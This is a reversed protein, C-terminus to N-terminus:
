RAPTRWRRRMREREGADYFHRALRSGYVRDLYEAPLQVESLFRQYAAAYPKGDAANTKACAFDRIGLLAHMAPAIHTALDEARLTLWAIRENRLLAYGPERPFSAAYIDLALLPEAQQEFWVLPTDHDLLTLFAELLEASSPVREYFDPVYRTIDYFFSSVNRAVPDRVLTIVKWHLPDCAVFRERLAQAERVFQLARAPADGLKVLAQELADLGCLEHFHYLAPPRVPRAALAEFVARSGVKGMQYVLVPDNLEATM